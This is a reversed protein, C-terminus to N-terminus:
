IPNAEHKKTPDRYSSSPTEGGFIRDASSNLQCIRDRDAQEGLEAFLRGFYDQAPNGFVPMCVFVDQYRDVPGFWAAGSNLKPQGDMAASFEEEELRDRCISPPQGLDVGVCASRSEALVWFRGPCDLRRLSVSGEGDVPWPVENPKKSQWVTFESFGHLHDDLGVYRALFHCTFRVKQLQNGLHKRSMRFARLLKFEGLLAAASLAFAFLSIFVDM